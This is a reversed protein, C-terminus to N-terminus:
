VLARLSNRLNGPATGLGAAGGLPAGRDNREGRAFEGAPRGMWWTPATALAPDRPLPQGYRAGGIGPGWVWGCFSVSGHLRAVGCDASAEVALADQIWGPGRAKRLTSEM